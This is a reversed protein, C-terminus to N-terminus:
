AKKYQSYVFTHDGNSRPFFVSLWFATMVLGIYWFFTWCLAFIVSSRIPDRRCLLIRQTLFDSSFIDIIRMVLDALNVFFFPVCGNMVAFHLICWAWKLIRDHWQHTAGGKKKKKNPSGTCWKNFQSFHIQWELKPSTISTYNAIRTTLLVLPQRVNEKSM